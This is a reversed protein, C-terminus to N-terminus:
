LGVLIEDRPVGVAAAIEPVVADGNTVHLIPAGAV